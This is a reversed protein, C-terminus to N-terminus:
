PVESLRANRGESITTERPHFEQRLRDVVRFITKKVTGVSTEFYAAIEECTMGEQHKMIFMLRPRPPVEELRRLIQQVMVNNFATRESGPSSFGGDEMNDRGQLLDKRRRRSLFSNVMIRRLWTHFSSEARFRGIARFANLFVDQALDEADHHNGCFRMALSLMARRHDSVLLCFADVDGQKARVILDTEAPKDMRTGFTYVCRPCPRNALLNARSPFGTFPRLAEAQGRPEGNAMRKIAM